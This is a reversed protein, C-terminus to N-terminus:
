KKWSYPFLVFILAIIIVDVSVLSTISGQIDELAKGAILKRSNTVGMLLVPIAVPFGLVSMMNSQSNTSASISSILTFAGALGISVLAGNLTFASPNAIHQPFFLQMLLYCLGTLSVVYILNYLLKSLLLESPRLLFYYYISRDSEQIFSKGIATTTTVLVIIWWLANWTELSLTGQFSLYCIYSLSLLYSILSYFPYKTRFDLSFEKILLTKIRNM